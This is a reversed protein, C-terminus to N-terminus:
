KMLYNKQWKLIEEKVPGWMLNANSHKVSQNWLDALSKEDNKLSKKKERRQIPCKGSIEPENIREKTMESRHNIQHIKM